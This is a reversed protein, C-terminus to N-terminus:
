LSTPFQSEMRIANVFNTRLTSGVLKLFSRIIRDEDLNSVKDLEAEIWRRITKAKRDSKDKVAPDFSAEFIEVLGRTLAGNASLTQEMYEQSFPIRAQRLFKSYARVIVVQRWSLGASLVLENFGDNEMEGRWVRAFCEKFPLRVKDFEIELGNHQRVGFDHIFMMRGADGFHLEYPNESAVILGMKELVPLADSLLVPSGSSYLRLRFESDSAGRMQYPDFDFEGTKSIKEFREIDFVSAEPTTDERYAAPFVDVYKRYLANGREEGVASIL